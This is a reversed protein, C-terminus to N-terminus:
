VVTRPAFLVGVLPIYAQGVTAFTANAPLAFAAAQEALGLVKNAAATSFVLRAITATVNDVALALYFSGLGLLTDTIDVTQIASVGAQATSGTSILRTGDESYLGADVNGSVTGGNSWFLRTAIQPVALRFPIFIALNASPWVASSYSNLLGVTPGLSELSAPVITPFPPMHIM